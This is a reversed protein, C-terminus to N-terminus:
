YSKNTKKLSAHLNRIGYEFLFPYYVKCATELSLDKSEIDSLVDEFTCMYLTNNHLTGYDFLTSKNETSILTESYRLLFEDFDLLDFPNVSYPYKSEAMVKQGISRKVIHERSDLNLGIVDSYTYTQKDTVDNLDVDGINSLFASFRQRNLELKENQTLNKYIKQSDLNQKIQSFLYIKKLVCVIKWLTFLRRKLLKLRIM